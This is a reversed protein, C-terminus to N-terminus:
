KSSVGTAPQAVRVTEGSVISDPPNVIVKEKGTLGSVVEVENGFDRGLVVSVLAAHAGDPVTALQLGESRFILASVPVIFTPVDSPLKLHVEAYAGPLLEGTPNDVDVEILLTRSSTSIAEANRVLRGVFKRGPLEQLTLDATLGNKASQSYQQPVNVYVRLTRTSAIQFLSKTVGGSSGSDILQGIDTNRATIVGDFPAYIRKFSELQELYKVQYEASAVMAAKAQFDGVANDVDQKAVSDTNKLDQYRNATIQSLRYNAQATNLNARAQELQQDVEPTDIEALLQGAKVHAGIDVYWNKLYGNTRAYIPADIFAQINGPLVLEQHPAGQKPQIVSITPIALDRTEVSLAAKARLRPVVGAVIIAAVVILVLVAVLLGHSSRPAGAPPHQGGDPAAFESHETM